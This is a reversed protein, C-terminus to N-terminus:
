EQIVRFTSLAHRIESEWLSAESLRYSATLLIYRGNDILYYKEVKVPSNKNLQRTYTIRAAYYRNIHVQEAAMTGILHLGMEVADSGFEDRMVSAKIEELELQKYAPDMFPTYGKLVPQATVEVMIRMYQKLGKQTVNLFKSNKANKMQATVVRNAPTDPASKLLEIVSKPDSFLGNATMSPSIDITCVGPHIVRLWGDKLPLASDPTPAPILISPTMLVAAAISRLM